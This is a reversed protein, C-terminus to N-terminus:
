TRESVQVTSGSPPSLKSMRISSQRSTAQSKQPVVGGSAEELSPLHALRGLEGFFEEVLVVAPDVQVAQALEARGLLGVVGHLRGVQVGAPAEHVPELRLSRLRPEELDRM